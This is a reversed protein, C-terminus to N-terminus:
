RGRGPKALGGQPVLYEGYAAVTMAVDNSGSGPEPTALAVAQDFTIVVTVADVNGVEGSLYTPASM